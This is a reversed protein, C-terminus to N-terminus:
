PREAVGQSREAKLDCMAFLADLAPSPLELFKM